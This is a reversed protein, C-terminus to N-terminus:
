VCANRSFNELSKDISYSLVPMMICDTFGPGTAVLMDFIRFGEQRAGAASRKTDLAILVIKTALDVM